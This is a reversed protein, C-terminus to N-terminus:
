NPSAFIMIVVLTHLLLLILWLQDLPGALLSFEWIYMSRHLTSIDIDVVYTEHAIFIM